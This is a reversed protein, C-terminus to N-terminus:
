YWSIFHQGLFRSCIHRNIARLSLSCYNIQAIRKRSFVAMQFVDDLIGVSSLVVKTTM